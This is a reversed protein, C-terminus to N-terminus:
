SGFCAYAEAINAKMQWPKARAGTGIAVANAGAEAFLYVDSPHRISNGGVILKSM